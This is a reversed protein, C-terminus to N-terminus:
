RGADLRLFRSYVVVYEGEKWDNLCMFEGRGANRSSEGSDRGLGIPLTPSHTTEEERKVCM